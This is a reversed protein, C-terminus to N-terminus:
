PDGEIYVQQSLDIGQGQVSVHCITYTWGYRSSFGGRSGILLQVDLGVQRGGPVSTTDESTGVINFDVGSVLVLNNGFPPQSTLTVTVSTNIPVIYFVSFEGGLNVNTPDVSLDPTITVV